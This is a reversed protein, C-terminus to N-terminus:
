NDDSWVSCCLERVAFLMLCFVCVYIHRILLTMAILLRTPLIVFADCYVCVYIHRILLTIAILLRTPLIVFADCYVCM